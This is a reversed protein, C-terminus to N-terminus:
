AGNLSTKERSQECDAVQNHKVAEGLGVEVNKKVPGNAANVRIYTGEM